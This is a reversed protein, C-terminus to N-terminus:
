EGPRIMLSSGPLPRLRGGRCRIGQPERDISDVALWAVARVGGGLPGTAALEALVVGEGLHRWRLTLRTGDTGGRDVSIGSTTGSLCLLALDPPRGIADIGEGLRQTARMRDFALSARRAEDLAQVLAFAAWASVILVACLVAPLAM